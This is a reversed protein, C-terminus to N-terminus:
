VDPPRSALTGTSPASAMMWVNAQYRVIEAIIRYRGVHERRDNMM